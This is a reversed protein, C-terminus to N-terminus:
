MAPAPTWWWVSTLIVAVFITLWVRAKFVAVSYESEPVYTKEAPTVDGNVHVWM